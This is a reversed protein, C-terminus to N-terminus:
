EKVFKKVKIGKETKVKVFYVGSPLASVDINTKNIYANKELVLNGVVDYIRLDLNTFRLDGADITINNTAPSPYVKISGANNNIEDIGLQSLPLRFLDNPSEGQKGAFIYSGNVAFADIENYGTGASDWSSGNNSSSYVGEDVTGVLIYNGIPILADVGMSQSLGTNVATWQQGNNSSLFVNDSPNLM